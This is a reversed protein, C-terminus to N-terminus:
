KIGGRSSSPSSFSFFVNRTLVLVIAAIIAVTIKIKRWRQQREAEATDRTFQDAATRMRETKEDINEIKDQNDMAIESDVRLCFFHKHTNISM